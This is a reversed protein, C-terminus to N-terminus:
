PASTTQKEDPGPLYEGRRMTFPKSQVIGLVLASFRYDNQELHKAIDDVECQDYYELGRGLAFTLMKEALTRAFEDQRTRLIRILEGAGAFKEGSPLVGTSDIEARGDKERWRGIADYNEFAFGLADM